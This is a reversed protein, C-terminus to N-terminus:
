ESTKLLLVFTTVDCMNYYYIYRVSPSKICRHQRRWAVYCRSYTNRHNEPLICSSKKRGRGEGRQIIITFTRQFQNCTSQTCHTQTNHSLSDETVIKTDHNFSNLSQKQTDTHSFSVDDAESSHLKCNMLQKRISHNFSVTSDTKQHDPYWTCKWLSSLFHSNISKRLTM